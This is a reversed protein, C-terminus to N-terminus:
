ATGRFKRCRSRGWCGEVGEGQGAGAGVGYGMASGDSGARQLADAESGGQLRASSRSTCRVGRGCERTQV